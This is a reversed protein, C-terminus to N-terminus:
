PKGKTAIVGGRRRRRRFIVFAAAAAVVVVLVLIVWGIAGMLLSGVGTAERHRLHPARRALRHRQM